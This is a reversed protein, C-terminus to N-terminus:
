EKAFLSQTLSSLAEDSLPTAFPVIALPSGLIDTLTTINENKYPMDPSLTNGIWGALTAGSAKIAQATLLAHNLCGLRLGVVMIVQMNCNVPLAPMFCQNGLPLQWGGAGETILVDPKYRALAHYGQMLQEVTITQGAKKAAIHPAIPPEFAIPNVEKLCVGISSLKQYQQADDNVWEGNIWECGASVPKYGIVSKGRLVVSRMLLSGVYTKGVDTDTGTIFWSQM